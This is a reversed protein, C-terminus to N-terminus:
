PAPSYGRQRMKAREEDSLWFFLENRDLDHLALTPEGWHTCTPSIGKDRIHQLLVVTQEPGLGIFIRGRGPRDAEDDEAQNLIIQAGFLSVQVVHPRGAEEYKWDLKFGLSDTYFAM